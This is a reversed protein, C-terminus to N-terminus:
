PESYVFYTSKLQINKRRAFISYIRVCQSYFQFSCSLKPNPYFIVYETNWAKFKYVKKEKKTELAKKFGNM